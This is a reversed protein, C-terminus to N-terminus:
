LHRSQLQSRMHALCSKVNIPIKVLLELCIQLYALTVPSRCLKCEPFLCEDGACKWLNIKQHRHSKIQKIKSEPPFFIKRHALCMKLIVQLISCLYCYLHWYSYNCKFLM